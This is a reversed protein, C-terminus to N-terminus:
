EETLLLLFIEYKMHVRISWIRQVLNRNWNNLVSVGKPKTFNQKDIDVLYIEDIVFLHLERNIKIRKSKPFDYTFTVTDIRIGKGNM